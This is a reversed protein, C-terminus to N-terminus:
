IVESCSLDMMSTIAQIQTDNLESEKLLDLCEQVERSTPIANTPATQTVPFIVNLDLQDVAYHMSRMPLRGLLFRMSVRNKSVASCM